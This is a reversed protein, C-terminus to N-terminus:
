VGVGRPWEDWTRGDLQRGTNRKGICRMRSTRKDGHVHVVPSSPFENDIGVSSQMWAGWQKFHFPVGAQVCQDRIGRAWDPHMPRASHGSEGGVVVWDITGLTDTLDVPGLLPEMSLWRVAGPTDRLIRSRENATEQNEVSVGLWVNGAVGQGFVVRDCLMDGGDTMAAVAHAVDDVWTRSSLVDRMRSPRKTLVQFVHRPAAFMIAFVSAIFADSVDDHFLDSMSNVFIKRPRTWRLPQDLLHPVERARGTWVPGKDTMKTLGEYAGGEHDMRRAQWMAYCNRCGESVKSCGRVPNWTADTWEIGTKDAM